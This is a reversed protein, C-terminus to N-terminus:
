TQGGGNTETKEEDLRNGTSGMGPWAARIDAKANKGSANAPLPDATLWWRRPIEFSALRARLHRELEAQTVDHGRRVSVAAALEEGLTPHDIGLVAAEMVAPHERLAAEVAAAGINEGGRIVIDKKRGTLYLYGDADVRGLDGTRLWGDRTFDPTREALGDPTWHGLMLSPSSVAIEGTGNEDAGEIRLETTDLPRGVTGPRSAAAAGASATVVGGAETLGYTVGVRSRANPFHRSTDHRLREAAAAGGVSITRISAIPPGDEADLREIVRAVMTPVASWSTIHRARMTRIASDPDFRGRLLVVTRGSVMPNLIQQLGGIHFLPVSLLARQPPPSAPRRGAGPRARRELALTSNVLGRHSLAVPKASGTTGSTFLIVAPADEDAPPDILRSGATAGARRGLETLAIQREGADGPVTGPAGSDTLYLRPTTLAAAARLQQGSWWLNPL